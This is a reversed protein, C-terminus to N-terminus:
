VPKMGHAELRASVKFMDYIGEAIAGAFVIDEPIAPSLAYGAAMLLRDAEKRTLRLALAFQIATRKSVVHNEDSIIASYTKRSLDAAKYIAPANNDYRDRVWIIVRAAFSLNASHLDPKRPKNEPLEVTLRPPKHRTPRVFGYTPEEDFDEADDFTTPAALACCVANFVLDPAQVNEECALAEERRREAERAIAARIAEEAMRRQEPTMPPPPPLPPFNEDMDTTDNM